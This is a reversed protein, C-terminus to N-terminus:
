QEPYTLLPGAEKAYDEDSCPKAEGYGGDGKSCGENTIAKGCKGKRPDKKGGGKNVNAKGRTGKSSGGGLQVKGKKAATPRPKTGAKRQTAKFASPSITVLRISAGATLSTCLLGLGAAQKFIPRESEEEESGESGEVIRPMADTVKFADLFDRELEHLAGCLVLSHLPPGLDVDSLQQMSGFVICQSDAGLRAVGVCLSDPTCVALSATLIPPHPSSPHSSHLPSSLHNHRSSLTHPLHPTPPTTAGAKPKLSPPSSCRVLPPLLLPGSTALAAAHSCAEGQQQRKEEVLLLQRIATNVSMYRPAEYEIRGRGGGGGRAACKVLSLLQLLFLPFFAHSAMAELSPEKMKIDSLVGDCRRIPYRCRVAATPHVSTLPSFPPPICCPISVAKHFSYLQLGTAGVANLVSANHVVSVAVGQQRARLMLDTHTTACPELPGASWKGLPLAKCGGRLEVRKHLFTDARAAGQGQHVIWEMRGCMAAGTRPVCGFPDGVVLFAVDEKAALHLLDGARSEVMERDAVRVERGYLAEQGGLGPPRPPLLPSLLFHPAHSFSPPLLSSLLFCSRRFLHVRLSPHGYPVDLPSYLSCTARLPRALRDENTRTAPAAPATSGHLPSLQLRCTPLPLLASLAKARQIPRDWCCVQPAGVSPSASPFRGWAPRSHHTPTLSSTPPTYPPSAPLAPFHPHSPPPAGPLVLTPPAARRIPCCPLALRPTTGCNPAASLINLRQVAPSARSQTPDREFEPSLM